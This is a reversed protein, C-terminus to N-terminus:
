TQITVRWFKHSHFSCNLWKQILIYWSNAEQKSEENGTEMTKGITCNCTVLNKSWNVICCCCFYLVWILAKPAFLLSFPSLVVTCYNTILCSEFIQPIHQHFCIKKKKLIPALLATYHLQYKIEFICKILFKLWDFWFLIFAIIM